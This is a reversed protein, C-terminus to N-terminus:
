NMQRLGSRTQTFFVVKSLQQNLLRFELTVWVLGQVSGSSSLLHTLCPKGCAINFFLQYKGTGCLDTINIRTPLSSGKSNAASVAVAWNETRPIVWTWSTHETINQLTAKEGAVELLTVQYHLIKGRAESVSLNQLLVCGSVIYAWVLDNSARHRSRM